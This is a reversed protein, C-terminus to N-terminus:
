GLSVQAANSVVVTFTETSYLNPTGGDNVRVTVANTSGGADIKPTWYVRGNAPNILMGAPAGPDLSYSLQRPPLDTDTATNTVILLSNVMATRDPVTALSPGANSSTTFQAQNSPPSELRNSNYATA